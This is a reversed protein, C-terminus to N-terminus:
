FRSFITEDSVNAERTEKKRAKLLIGIKGFAMLVIRIYGPHSVLRKLLGMIHKGFLNSSTLNKWIFLLQNRERIKQFYNKSLKSVTGEHKHVVKSNPEWVLGYGRKLARYCIDIDEWYAPSLLKEDMGGLKMWIDRKFIGSGGSIWFTIHSSGAETGPEHAIFGDKFIGKAWGYGKEHLSVGFIRKNEFHYFTSVLFDNEPIVDTNLLCIFDGKSSRVGTNVASSFGRNIKHKIIKVWGFDKKLVELSKDKSGDDVVIVEYINNGAFKKAKLVFPLNSRLLDEGNYNPIIISVKM